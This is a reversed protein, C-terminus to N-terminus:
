ILVIHQHITDLHKRIISLREQIIEFNEKEPYLNWEGWLTQDSINIFDSNYQLSTEAPCSRAYDYSSNEDCNCHIHVLKM